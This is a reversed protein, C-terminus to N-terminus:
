PEELDVQLIQGMQGSLEEIQEESLHPNVVQAREDRGRMKVTWVERGDNIESSEYKAIRKRMLVLMLVFRFNVKEAEEENELRDFFAVLMDDDVFLKKKEESRNMRSKWFCYVKPENAHWYELGFDRRELGNETEVLAAYYEQGDAIPEGTGFCQGLSKRIEWDSIAM